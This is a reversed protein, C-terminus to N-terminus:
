LRCSVQSLVTFDSPTGLRSSGAHCHLFAQRFPSSPAKSLQSYPAMTLGVEAASVPHRRWDTYLAPLRPYRGVDYLVPQDELLQILNEEREESWFDAM